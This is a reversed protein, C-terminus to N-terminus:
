IKRPEFVHESEKYGLGCERYTNSGWAYLSNVAVSDNPGIEMYEKDTWALVNKGGVCIQEVRIPGDKKSYFHELKRFESISQGNIKGLGLRGHEAMGSSYVDGKETLLVSFNMGGQADKLKIQTGDFPMVHDYGKGSELKLSIGLQGFKNNGGAFLRGVKDIVLTHDMGCQVQRIM